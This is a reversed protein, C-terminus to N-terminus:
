EVTAGSYKVVKAWRQVDHEVFKAFQAPPMPSPSGGESELRKAFAPDEIAKKAAEYLRQTTEAPMKAPGFLGFWANSEFGKVTNGIPPVGPFQPMPTSSTVGLLKIKGSGVHPLVNLTSAFMLEVHGALLDTIAPNTGKYAVNVINVGTMMKLQEGAMHLSSGVGGIAFNLKGPNKKAYSLLEAVNNVPVNQNAILVSPVTAVMTIPTFDKVADFPLKKYLTANITHSTFSMLLTDGNPESKAVYEAAINGGAGPKNEVIVSRKLSAEMGKGVMRALTDTTGGPPAGVIIKIPRSTDQALAPASCAFSAAMLVGAAVTLHSKFSTFSM